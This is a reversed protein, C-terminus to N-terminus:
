RVFYAAVACVVLPLTAAGTLVAPFRRWAAVGWVGIDVILVTAAAAWALAAGHDPERCELFCGSWAFSAELGLVAIPIALLTAVGGVTVTTMAGASVPRPTAGSGAPPRRGVAVAAWAPIAVAAGSVLAVLALLDPNGGRLLSVVAVVVAVWIAAGAWLWEGAVAGLRKRDARAWLVTLLVVFLAPRAAVSADLEWQWWTLWSGILAVLLVGAARVAAPGWMIM